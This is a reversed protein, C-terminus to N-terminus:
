HTKQMLQCQVPEVMQRSDPIQCPTSIIFSNKANKLLQTDNILRLNIERRM